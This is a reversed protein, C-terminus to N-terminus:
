LYYLKQIARDLRAIVVKVKPSNLFTWICPAYPTCKDYTSRRLAFRLAASPRITFGHPKKRYPINNNM